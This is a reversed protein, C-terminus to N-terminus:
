VESTQEGVEVVESSDTVVMDGDVSPDYLVIAFEDTPDHLPRPEPVIRRKTGLVLPFVIASCM